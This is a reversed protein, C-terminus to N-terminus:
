RLPPLAFGSLDLSADKGAWGCGAEGPTQGAAFCTRLDRCLGNVFRGDPNSTHYVLNKPFERVALQDFIATCVAQHPLVADVPCTLPSGDRVCALLAKIKYSNVEPTSVDGYCIEKGDVYGRVCPTADNEDIRIVGKEFTYEVIPHINDDGSHTSLFLFDAGNPFKGKLFCTDFSEIPKARYVSGWVQAPLESRDIRPGMMFFINHLYHATANTVVSDFVPNGDADTIRGKWKSNNYYDDFRPWSILAKLTVARGYVGSLIDQKARLVSPAFSWQFGVGLPRGYQASLSRLDMADEYRATLPKECLVACGHALAAECQRRHFPIPSAIYLADVTQEAFLDEVTDYLPIKKEKFFPFRPARSAFPDAIGVLKYEEQPIDNLLLGLCTDAYGGAGAFAVKIPEM